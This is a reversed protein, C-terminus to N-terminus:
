FIFDVKLILLNLPILHLMILIYERVSFMTFSFLNLSEGYCVYSFLYLSYCGSFFLLFILLIFLNKMWSILSILLLIESLLNLSPPASMNGVCLFFWLLMMSPSYILMGKNVILSRSMSREYFMNVLCFLGSSCLGHAIMMLLAGQVGILNMSFLGGIVLSMHVVSSYAVLAKMDLQRMCILSMYVGGVLSFLTIMWNVSCFDNEFLFIVRYIGYGGLKLMVGALIMSGAVPAEVHAKPLWLHFFFMPLKVLFVNIMLCYYMSVMGGSILILNSQLFIIDLSYYNYSVFILMFLFPLSFFLTYMMMYMGARIREVQYGWGLILFLTPILSVEFFFYFILYNLSSFSLILFLLMSMMNMMFLSTFLKLKVIKMSALMMLIVIWLSLMIMWFSFYDLGYLYGGVFFNDFFNFNLYSFEFFYIIVMILLLNQFIINFMMGKVYSWMVMFISMMLLLFIIYKMM